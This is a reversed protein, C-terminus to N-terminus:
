LDTSQLANPNEHDTFNITIKVGPVDVVLTKPAVTRSGRIEETMRPVKIKVEREEKILKHGKKVKIKSEKLLEKIVDQSFHQEINELPQMLTMYRKTGQSRIAVFNHEILHNLVRAYVTKRKPSLITPHVKLHLALDGKGIMSGKKNSDSLYKVISMAKTIFDKPNDSTTKRM